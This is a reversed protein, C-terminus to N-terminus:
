RLKLAEVADRVIPHYDATSLDATKLRARVMKVVANARAMDGYKVFLAALNMGAQLLQSDSDMAKRFFDYGAQDDGLYLSVVGMLNLSPAHNERTELARSLVLRAM